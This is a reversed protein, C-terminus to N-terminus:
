QGKRIWAEDKANQKQREDGSNTAALRPSTSRAGYFSAQLVDTPMRLTHMVRGLGSAIQSCIKRNM